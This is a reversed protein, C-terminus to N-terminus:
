QAQWGTRPQSQSIVGDHFDGPKAIWTRLQIAELFSQSSGHQIAVGIPGQNTFGANHRDNNSTTVNVGAICDLHFKRRKRM